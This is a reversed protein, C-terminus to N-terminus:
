SLGKQPKSSFHTTSLSLGDAPCWSAPLISALRVQRSHKIPETPSLLVEFQNLKLVLWVDRDTAGAATIYFNPDTKALPVTVCELALVGTQEPPSAFPASVKVNPLTLLLFGEANANLGTM